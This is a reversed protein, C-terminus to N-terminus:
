RNLIVKQFEFKGTSYEIRILYTGSALCEDFFLTSQRSNIVFSPTLLKGHMSHISIKYITAQSNEITLPGATPNPFISLLGNKSDIKPIITLDSSVYKTLTSICEFQDTVTVTHLGSDVNLLHMTQEGSNWIYKYAPSGGEVKTFISADIFGSSDSNFQISDISVILSDIAQISTSGKAECGNQDTVSLTFTGATLSDLQTTSSGNNWSFNYPESGGAVLALVKGVQEKCFIGDEAFDLTMANFTFTVSAEFFSNCGLNDSVTLLYNGASVNLLDEVTEGNSWQFSLPSTGGSVDVSVSGNSDGACVEDSVSSLSIQAANSDTLIIQHESSCGVTDTITLSYVGSNLGFISSTSDGTNWTFDFPGTGTVSLSISGNSANCGSLTISPTIFLSDSGTVSFIETKSCGNADTIVVPYTGENLGSFHSAVPMGNLSFTFPETGGTIQIDVEGLEKACFDPTIIPSVHFSDTAQIVFTETYDCSNTDSVTITYSGASLNTIDNTSSSNSWAYTATSSFKSPDVVISADNSNFCSEKSVQAMIASPCNENIPDFVLSLLPYYPFAKWAQNGNKFLVEANNASKTGITSLVITGIVKQISFLYKGAPLITDIPMRFVDGIASSPVQLAASEFISTSLDAANFVNLKIRSNAVTAPHIYVRAANISDTAFLQFYTGVQDPASELWIGTGDTEPLIRQFLSDNVVFRSADLPSVASDSVSEVLQYFINYTGKEFPSFRHSIKTKVTQAENPFVTWSARTDKYNNNVRLTLELDLTDLTNNLVDTGFQFNAKRALRLPIGEYLTISQSDAGNVAYTNKREVRKLSNTRLYINDVALGSAYLGQDSYYFRFQFNETLYDSPLRTEHDTWQNSTKLTLLTTWDTGNESVQLEAVQGAAGNQFAEFGIYVEPISRLDIRTSTLFDMSKDCNCVDDNTMAFVTHKPVPWYGKENAQNAQNGAIGTYFGADGNSSTSWSTPIVGTQASEFGEFFFAGAPLAPLARQTTIHQTPGSIRQGFASLAFSLLSIAIVKKM